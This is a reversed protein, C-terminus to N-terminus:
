NAEAEKNDAFDYSNIMDEAADNIEDLFEIAEEASESAQTVLMALQIKMISSVDELSRGEFIAAIQDNVTDMEDDTMTAETEEAETNSM